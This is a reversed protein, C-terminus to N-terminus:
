GDYTHKKKKTFLRFIAAFPNFGTILCLALAALAVIWLWWPLQWSTKTKTSETTKTKVDTNITTSGGSSDETKVQTTTSNTKHTSDKKNGSSNHTEEKLQKVPITKPKNIVTLKIAGDSEVTSSIIATPTEVTKGPIIYLTTTDGALYINTDIISRSHHEESHHEESVGTSDGQETHLSDKSHKSGTDIAVTSSSDSSSSSSHRGKKTIGCSCLLIISLLILTYKM